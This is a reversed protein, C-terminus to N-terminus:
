VISARDDHLRNTPLVDIEIHLGDLAPNEGLLKQTLNKNLFPADPKQIHSYCSRM